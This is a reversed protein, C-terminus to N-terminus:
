PKREGPELLRRLRTREAPVLNAVFYSLALRRDKTTGLVEGMRSAAYAERNQLPHYAYARGQPERGLREKHWLRVLVTMVTTYALSRGASLAEHVQGPTLPGPADWLVDMVAAELEGMALKAM